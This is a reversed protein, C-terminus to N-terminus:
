ETIAEIKKMTKWFADAKYAELSEQPVKLLQLQSQATTASDITTPPTTARIIVSSILTALSPAFALKSIVSLTNPFDLNGYTDSFAYQEVRSIPAPIVFSRNDGTSVKGFFAYEGITTVSGDSPIISDAQTCGLILTKTVIDYLCNNSVAYKTNGQEVEINHLNSSGQFARSGILSVSKPIYLGYINFNHFVFNKIESVDPIVLPSTEVKVGKEYMQSTSIIPSSLDNGMTIGCWMQLDDIDVRTISRAQKFCDAGISTVTSPIHIRNLANCGHFSSKGLTAGDGLDASILTPFSPSKGSVDGLLSYAKSSFTGGPTWTEGEACAVKVTYDGAAAYTHSFQASTAANTEKESGDGWDITVANPSSQTIYLPQTLNSTLRFSLETPKKTDGGGFMKSLIVDKMTYENARRRGFLKVRIIDSLTM